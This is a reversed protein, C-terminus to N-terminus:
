SLCNISVKALLNISILSPNNIFSEEMVTRINRGDVMKKKKQMKHEADVDLPCSELSM